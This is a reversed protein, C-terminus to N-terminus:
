DLGLISCVKDNSGHLQRSWGLRVASEREEKLSGDFVEMLSGDQSGVVESLGVFQTFRTLVLDILTVLPQFQWPRPDPSTTHSTSGIEGLEIWENM